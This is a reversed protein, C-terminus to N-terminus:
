CQPGAFHIKTPVTCIHAVPNHRTRKFIYPSIFLNCVTKIGKTFASLEQYLVSALIGGELLPSSHDKRANALMRASRKKQSCSCLHFIQKALLSCNSFYFERAALM